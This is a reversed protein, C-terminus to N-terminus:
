CITLIILSLTESYLSMAWRKQYKKNHILLCQFFDLSLSFFESRAEVFKHLGVDDVDVLANALAAKTVNVFPDINTVALHYCYFLYTRFDQLFVRLFQHCTESVFDVYHLLRLVLVHHCKVINTLWSVVDVQKQLQAVLSRQIVEQLLFPSETLLLRNFQQPLYGIPVLQQVFFVNHM